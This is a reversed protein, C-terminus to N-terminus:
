FDIKEIVAPAVDVSASEREKVQPILQELKQFLPELDFVNAKGVRKVRRLMGKRQLSRAHARVGTPTMGMRKALRKFGPFPMHISWKHRMLQIILMAELNSIGLQRYNDLFFDSVPTWSFAALTPTWRSGITRLDLKSGM